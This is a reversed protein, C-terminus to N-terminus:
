GVEKLQSAISVDEVAGLRDRIDSSALGVLVGDSSRRPLRDVALPTPTWRLAQADPIGAGSHLCLEADVGGIPMHEGHVTGFLVARPNCLCDGDTFVNGGRGGDAGRYEDGTTPNRCSGVGAPAHGRAAVDDSQRRARSEAGGAPAGEAIAAISAM